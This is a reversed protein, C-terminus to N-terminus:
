QGEENHALFAAVKDQLTPEGPKPVFGNQVGSDAKPKGNGFKSADFDWYLTGKSNKRISAEIVVVSREVGNLTCEKLQYSASKSSIRRGVGDCHDLWDRWVRTFEPCRFADPVSSPLMLPEKEEEKWEGEGEGEGEPNRQHIPISDMSPNMSPDSNSGDVNGWRKMSAHHAISRRKAIERQKEVPFRWVILSSNEWRLLPSSRHIEKLTVGCLQQWKRDKWELCNEIEGGNEQECCYSLVNLWTARAVPDCGMYEPSRLTAMQINVWQM